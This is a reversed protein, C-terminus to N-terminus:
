EVYESLSKRRPRFAACVVSPATASSVPACSFYDGPRGETQAGSEARPVRHTTIQQPTADPVVLEPLGMLRGEAPVPGQDQLFAHWLAGTRRTPYASALM